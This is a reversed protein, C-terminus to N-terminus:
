AADKQNRPKWDIPIGFVEDIIPLGLMDSLAEAKEIMNAVSGRRSETDLLVSKPSCYKWDKGPSGCPNTHGNEVSIFLNVRGEERVLHLKAKHRFHRRPANVIKPNRCKM